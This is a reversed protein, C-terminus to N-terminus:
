VERRDSEATSLRSTVTWKFKRKVPGIGSGALIRALRWVLRLDRSRLRVRALGDGIDASHMADGSHTASSTPSATSRGPMRWGQGCGRVSASFRRYRLARRLLPAPRGSTRLLSHRLAVQRNTCEISNSSPTVMPTSTSTRTTARSGRRSIAAEVDELFAWRCEM